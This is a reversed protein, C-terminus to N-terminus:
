DEEIPVTFFIKTGQGERSWIDLSGALMRVREEMAALGLCKGSTDRAMAQPLDFGKGNDQIKFDVRGAKKKISIDVNSAQAHKGINTLCEQVIRYIIIEVKQSFLNRLDDMNLSIRIRCHQGFEEFLRKLAITLGLNNLISPRLDRSLRRVEEVIRDITRVESTLVERLNSLDKPVEREIAQLLSMKLILLSQGLDDHLDRSIREREREQATM